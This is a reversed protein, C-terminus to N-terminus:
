SLLIFELLTHKFMFSVITQPLHLLFFLVIFPYRKYFHHMVGTQQISPTHNSVTTQINLLTQMQTVSAQRSAVASNLGFYWGPMQSEFVVLYLQQSATLLRDKPQM